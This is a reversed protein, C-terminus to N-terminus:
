YRGGETTATLPSEDEPLTMNHLQKAIKQCVELTPWPKRHSTFWKLVEEASVVM